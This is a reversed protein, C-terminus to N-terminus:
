FRHLTIYLLTNKGHKRPAKCPSEIWTPKWCNLIACHPSWNIRRGSQTHPLCLDRSWLRIWPYVLIWWTQFGPKTSIMMSIIEAFWLISRRTRGTQGLKNCGAVFIMRRKSKSALVLYFDCFYQVFETNFIAGIINTSTM